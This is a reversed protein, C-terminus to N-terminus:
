IGNIEKERHGGTVMIGFTGKMKARIAVFLGVRFAIRELKDAVDRFGNVGYELRVEPDPYEKECKEIKELADVRAEGQELAALKAEPAAEPIKYGDDIKIKEKLPELSVM